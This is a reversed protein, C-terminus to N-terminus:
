CAIDVEYKKGISVKVNVIIDPLMKQWGNDDTQRDSVTCFV